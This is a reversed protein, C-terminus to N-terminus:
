LQQELIYKLAEDYDIGFSKNVASGPNFRSPWYGIGNDDNIHVVSVENSWTIEQEDIRYETMGLMFLQIKFESINM